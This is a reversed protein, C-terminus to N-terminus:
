FLDSIVEDQGAQVAQWGSDLLDVMATALRDYNIREREKV